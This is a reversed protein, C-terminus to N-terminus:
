VEESVVGNKLHGLGNEPKKGKLPAFFHIIRPYDQEWNTPMFSPGIVLTKQEFDFGVMQIPVQAEKAIYYFGTRLKEVKKRTGEPSLALLFYDKGAFKAAAQQVMNQSSFRDVPTGGLWRFIFGFPWKFLSDKGLFYAEKMQLISRYALGIIFDWSSTHPAVIVVAKTIHKPFVVHTNWGLLKLFLKWFYYM